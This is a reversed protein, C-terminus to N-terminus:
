LHKRYVNYDFQNFINLQTETLKFLDIFDQKCTIWYALGDWHFKHVKPILIVRGAYDYDKLNTSGQPHRTIIVLLDCGTINDFTQQSKCFFKWSNKVIYRSTTKVQVTKTISDKHIKLDWPSFQDEPFEVEYGANTFYDAVLVEGIYGQKLSNSTCHSPFSYM